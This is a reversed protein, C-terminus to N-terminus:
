QIRYLKVIVGTINQEKKVQGGRLSELSGLPPSLIKGIETGWRICHRYIMLM